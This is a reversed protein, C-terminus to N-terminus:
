VRGRSPEDAAWFDTLEGPRPPVIVGVGSLMTCLSPDSGQRNRLQFTIQHVPCVQPGPAGARRLCLNLLGPSLRQPVLPGGAGRSGMHKMTPYPPVLLGQVPPIFLEFPALPPVQGVPAILSWHPLSFDFSTFGPCHCPLSLTATLSCSGVDGTVKVAVRGVAQSSMSVGGVGAMHLCCATRGWSLLCFRM